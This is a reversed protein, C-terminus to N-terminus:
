RESKSGSVKEQFNKKCGHKKLDNIQLDLSQEFTSVRAYGIIM